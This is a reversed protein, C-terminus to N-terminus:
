KKKVFAVVTAVARQTGDSPKNLLQGNAIIASSGGGDLNLVNVCGIAKMIQALELLTAGDSHAQRGDCVFLVIKNDATSGILTRPPRASTSFIDTQLLEYNTMYKGSTTTTFDFVIKGNKILVPAGGVATYANWQEAQVPFTQSPAKQPVEGEVNPSPVEYALNGSTWKLTPTQSQTVGFSGRTVQYINGRTLASINDAKKSGRDILLSYSSVTSGSYGFYGANTMVYTTEDTADAIFQSPTKATTSLTAKLEVNGTSVDAISYYAKFNRGNLQSNTEYVKVESPLNSNIATIPTWVLSIPQPEADLKGSIENSYATFKSNTAFARLYYTTGSELNTANCFAKQSSNLNVHWVTKNDDITPNPSKSWCVGVTCADGGDSTLTFNPSLKFFSPVLNNITIQPSGIYVISREVGVSVAEGSYAILKYTTKGFLPENDVISTTNKDLTKWASYATQENKREIKYGDIGDSAADWTLTITNQNNGEVKFNAPMSVPVHQYFVSVSDTKRQKYYAFVRYEYTAKELGEDIFETTNSTTTSTKIATSGTILRKVVFGEEGKSNDKWTIKVSTTSNKEIKLETPAPFPISLDDLNPINEKCSFFITMVLFIFITTSIKLYLGGLDGRQPSKFIWGIIKNRNIQVQNLIKIMPLYSNM